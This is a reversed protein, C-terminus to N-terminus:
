KCNGHLSFVSGSALSMMLLIKFIIRLVRIMIFKFPLKLIFELFIPVLFHKTKNAVICGKVIWNDICPMRSEVALELTEHNSLISNYEMENALFLFITKKKNM